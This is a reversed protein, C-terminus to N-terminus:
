HEQHHAYKASVHRPLFIDIFNGQQMLNANWMIERPLHLTFCDVFSIKIKHKRADYHLDFSVGVQHLV